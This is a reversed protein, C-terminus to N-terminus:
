EDDSAAVILRVPRDWFFYNWAWSVLALARSRFGVLYLLHVFIWLFWGVLGNIHVPGIQAVAAGRGVTAMTGKDRYRFAPIEQGSIRAAIALGAYKGGQIAVPALMPLVSGAQDVAAADGIVFVEPHSGLHLSPTVRIRGDRAVGDGGLDLPPAARVGATWLARRLSVEPATDRTKVRSMLASRELRTLPDVM